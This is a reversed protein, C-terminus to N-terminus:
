RRNSVIAPAELDFDHANHGPVVERVLETETNYKAPIKVQPAAPSGEPVEDGKVARISVRHQGVPAGDRGRSFQLKYEGLDNAYASGYAGPPNIPQFVVYAYPLVQGNVKVTGSVTGLEPGRSCGVLGGVLAVATLALFRHLRM